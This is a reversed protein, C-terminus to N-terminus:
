SVTFTMTSRYTTSDSNAPIVWDMSVDGQFRGRGKTVPATGVTVADSTGNDDADAMVTASGLSLDGVVAGFFAEGDNPTVTLNTVDISSTETPSLHADSLDSATMTLSWGPVAAPKHGRADDVKWDAMEGTVAQQESSVTIDPLTVDAPAQMTLAGANIGQSVLTTDDDNLAGAFALGSSSALLGLGVGASILRKFSKTM